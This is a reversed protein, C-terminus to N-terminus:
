LTKEPQQQQTQSFMDTRWAEEVESNSGQVRSADQGLKNATFRHPKTSSLFHQSNVGCGESPKLLSCVQFVSHCVVLKREAPLSQPKLM